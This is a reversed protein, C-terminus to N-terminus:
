NQWYKKLTLYQILKIETETNANLMSIRLELNYIMNYGSSSMDQSVPMFQCESYWLFVWVSM